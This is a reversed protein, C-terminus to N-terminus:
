FDGDAGIREFFGVGGKRRLLFLDDFFFQVLQNQFARFIGFNRKPAGVNLAIQVATLDVDFDAAIERKVADRAADHNRSADRDGAVRQPRLAFKFYVALIEFDVRGVGKVTQHADFV